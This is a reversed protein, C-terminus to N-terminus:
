ATPVMTLLERLSPGSRISGSSYNCILLIIGSKNRASACPVRLACPFKLFSRARRTRRAEALALRYYLGSYKARSHPCRLPDPSSAATASWRTSARTTTLRSWHRVVAQLDRGCNVVERRWQELYADTGAM